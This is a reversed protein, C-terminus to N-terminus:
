RDGGQGDNAGQGPGGQGNNGQNNNNGGQNNNNGGQGGQGGGSVSPNRDLARHVVFGGAVLAGVALAGNGAAAGGFALAGAGGASGLVALLERCTMRKDITIAQNPQLTITCNNNLQLTVAGSSSTVFREGDHIAEGVETSTVSAGDTDTVIGQVNRVTGLSEQSIPTNQAFAASALLASAIISFSKLPV